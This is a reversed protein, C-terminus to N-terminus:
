VKYTNILSPCTDYNEPANTNGSYSYLLKYVLSRCTFFLHLVSYYAYFKIKTMNLVIISAVVSSVTYSSVINLSFKQLLHYQVSINTENVM